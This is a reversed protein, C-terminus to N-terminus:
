STVYPDDPKDEDECTCVYPWSFARDLFQGFTAFLLAIVVQGFFPIGYSGLIYFGLFGFIIMGWNVRCLFPLKPAIPKTMFDQM